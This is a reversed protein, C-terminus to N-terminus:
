TSRRFSRLRVHRAQLLYVLLFDCRRQDLLEAVLRRHLHRAQRLDHEVHAHAFRDGVLLDQLIRDAVHGLQGTLLRHNGLCLLRDGHPLDAGAVRDAAHHREPLVPHVLKEVPQYRDRQRPHAVEATHRCAGEVAAAVEVQTDLFLDNKRFDLVVLYVRQSAHVDRDRRSCFGVGLRLRQEGREFKRELVSSAMAFVATMLRSWLRRSATFFYALLRASSSASMRLTLNESSSRSAARRLSSCSGRSELAVRKRLRPLRVPRGRPTYRLNPSPRLLSRSMAIRPSIGRTIFPNPMAMTEVERPRMVSRLARALPTPPSTIQM